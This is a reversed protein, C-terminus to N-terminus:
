EFIQTTNYFPMPSVINGGGAVAEVYVANMVWNPDAGGGTSGGFRFICTTTSFSLSASLANNSAWNPGSTHITGAADAYQGTPVEGADVDLLLTTNDYVRCRCNHASSSDGMAFRV